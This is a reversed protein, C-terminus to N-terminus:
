KLPEINFFENNEQMLKWLLQLEESHILIWAEVMKSQKNPLKGKLCFANFDYIAKSEEYQVHIHPTNHQKMDDYYMRVIVGYFQSVIPM